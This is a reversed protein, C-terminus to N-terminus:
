VLSNVFSTKSYNLINRMSQTSPNFSVKPLIEVSKKLSLYEERLNYDTEVAHNIEFYECIDVEKYIFRILDEETYSQM